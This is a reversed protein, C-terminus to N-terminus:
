IKELYKRKEKYSPHVYRNLTISVSSHGLIESLAKIDMGVEICESAFSHRLCHFKREKVKCKKLVNKYTYRYTIPEIFKDKRGTLFFDEDEYNKRLTKLISYLKNSIPIERVSTITKPKDIIIKTKKLKNDYIRELTSKVYIMRKDIDINKWKLACIEGIRLGTNLCILIGLEKTNNSEICCKEIRNKEAKNFVDVSGTNQKPVKIKNTKIKCNYEDEAYHLISKLVCAIDKVTKPALEASLENVLDNFDYKELENIKKGQLYKMLYKNVVYEYNSYSSQKITTKKYELWKEVIKDFDITM